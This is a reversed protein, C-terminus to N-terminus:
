DANHGRAAGRGLRSITLECRDRIGLGQLGHLQRGVASGDRDAEDTTRLEIRVIRAADGVGARGLDDIPLQHDSDEALLM